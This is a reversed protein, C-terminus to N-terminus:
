VWSIWNDGEQCWAWQTRIFLIHISHWCNVRECILRTGQSQTVNGDESLVPSYQMIDYLMTEVYDVSEEGLTIPVASGSMPSMCLIVM